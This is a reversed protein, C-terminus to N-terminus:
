ATSATFEKFTYNNKYTFKLSSINAVIDMMEFAQEGAVTSSDTSFSNIKVAYRNAGCPGNINNFSSYDRLGTDQTTENTPEATPCTVQFITAKAYVTRTINEVRSLGSISASGDFYVWVGLGGLINATTNLTSRLLYWGSTINLTAGVGTGTVIVSSVGGNGDEPVLPTCGNWGPGYIVVSPNTSSTFIKSNCWFNTMTQTLTNQILAVDQVENLEQAQLPFGPQFAIFPYNKNATLQNHTRSKYPIGSLPFKKTDAFPYKM